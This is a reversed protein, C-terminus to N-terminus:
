LNCQERKCYLSSFQHNVRYLFLYSTCWSSDKKRKPHSVLITPCCFFMVDKRIAVNYILSFCHVVQGISHASHRVNPPIISLFKYRFSPEFISDKL